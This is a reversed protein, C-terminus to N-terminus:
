RKRVGQHSLVVERLALAGRPGGSLGCEELWSSNQFFRISQLFFRRLLAPAVPLWPSPLRRLRPVNSM